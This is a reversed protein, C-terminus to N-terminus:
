HGHYSFPPLIYSLLTKFKSYIYCFNDKGQEAPRSLVVQCVLQGNYCVCGTDQRVSLFQLRKKYEKNDRANDQLSQCYTSIETQQECCLHSVGQLQPSHLRDRRLIRLSHREKELEGLILSRKACKKRTFHM